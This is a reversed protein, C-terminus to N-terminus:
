LLRRRDKFLMYLFLPAGIISTLIGIPLEGPLLGRSVNDVVMMFLGGMLFSAPMLGRYNPGVLFRCIHPIILGVWSFVGCLCVATATLLTACGLIIMRTQKIDIGMSKAEEDGFSLANIKYRLLFLPTAGIITVVVVLTINRYNGSRAFSGLLWYTIAPLKEDPDALYKIIGIVAQFISSVVSGSLIMVLLSGGNRSVIKTIVLVLMVAGIGFGFSVIQMLVSPFSFLMSIVAGTAAGNAAGLIDPSVMPNRFLGQYAAGAVSVGAGIMISLLIRPIRVIFLVVSAQRNADSVADRSLSQWIIEAVQGAPMAYRGVTLSLFGGAILLAFLVAFIVRERRVDASYSAYSEDLESIL